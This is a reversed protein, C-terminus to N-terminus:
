TCACADNVIVEFQKTGLQNALGRWGGCVLAAEQLVVTCWDQWPRGVRRVYRGVQPLLTGPIFTSNRLPSGEPAMAIKSLLLLQKRLLQRSFSQAGGKELVAANSVRSVYASPVRLIKRLCRAHFGDLRRRQATVLWITSLGYQLRSVILAQFYHLKDAVPVNAHSWLKQLRRFDGAATGIRRSIESDVRGDASLVAGLYKISGQEDIFTGDPRRIRDATCISLAQTKGRHLSMGNTAGAKEVAQGYEAVLDASEGIM